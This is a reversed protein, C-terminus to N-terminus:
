FCAEGGTKRDPTQLTLKNSHSWKFNNILTTSINVNQHKSVCHHNFDGNPPFVPTSNGSATTKKFVSAPFLPPSNRSTIPLWGPQMVPSCTMSTNCVNVCMVCMVINVTDWHKQHLSPYDSTLDGTCCYNTLNSNNKLNVATVDLTPPLHLLPGHSCQVTTVLM